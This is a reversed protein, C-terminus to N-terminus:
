PITETLRSRSFNPFCALVSAWHTTSSGTGREIRWERTASSICRTTRCITALYFIVTALGSQFTAIERIRLRRCTRAGRSLSNTHARVDLNAYSGSLLGSSDPALISVTRRRANMATKKHAPCTRANSCWL